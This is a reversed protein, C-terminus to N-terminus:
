LGWNLEMLLAFVYTHDGDVSGLASPLGVYLLTRCPEGIPDNVVSSNSGGQWASNLVISEVKAQTCWLWTLWRIDYYGDVPTGEVRTVVEWHGVTRIKIYGQPVSSPNSKHCASTILLWSVQQQGVSAVQRM